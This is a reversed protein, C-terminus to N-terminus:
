SGANQRLAWGAVQTRSRFGLKSLVRRVHVEVTGECIVLREAIGRNSLGDALLRAVERERATLTVSAIQGAPARSHKARLDLARELAPQMKMYQLQPIAIDLQGLAEPRAADGDLLLEALV